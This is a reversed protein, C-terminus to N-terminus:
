GTMPTKTTLLSCLPWAPVAQWHKIRLTRRIESYLTEDPRVQDPVFVRLVTSVFRFFPGSPNGTRPDRSLGAKRGRHREYYQALEYIMGHLQRNRPRGGRDEPLAKKAADVAAMLEALGDLLAQQSERPLIESGIYFMAWRDLEGLGDDPTEPRDDLPKLLDEFSEVKGTRGWWLYAQLAAAHGRLVALASDVNHARVQPMRGGPGFYLDSILLLKRCLQERREPDTSKYGLAEEIREWDEPAGIEPEKPPERSIDGLKAM